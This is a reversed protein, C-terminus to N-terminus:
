LHAFPLSVPSCLSTSIFVEYQDRTGSSADGPTLVHGHPCTCPVFDETRVKEGTALDYFTHSRYAVEKESCPRRSYSPVPDCFKYQDSEQTISYGDEPDWITPCPSDPCSCLQQVNVGGANTQLFACVTHRRM